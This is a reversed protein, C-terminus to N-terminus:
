LCDNLSHSGNAKASADFVLRLETTAKENLVVPKHEAKSKIRLLKMTVNLYFQSKGLSTM